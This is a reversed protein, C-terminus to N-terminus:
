KRERGSEGKQLQAVVGEFANEGHKELHGLPRRLYALLRRGNKKWILHAVL